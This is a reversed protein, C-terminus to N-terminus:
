KYQNKWERLAAFVEVESDLAHGAWLGAAQRIAPERTRLFPNIALEQALPVPLTPLGQARLHTARQQWNQLADNGPDVARAWKLNSLTYEHACCVLTDGPLDTFQALSALMQAPTGEFLRGCGGSFLTDGCFLLAPGQAPSALYAVHGATHGPVNYVTCDIGAAALTFRSGGEVRIDCRPLSERAPGYVPISSDHSLETVGGVHDHHHHTLLIASLQLGHEDLARQVPVAEGPDIVVAHRGAHWLWIYNDSLAPLALLHPHAFTNM